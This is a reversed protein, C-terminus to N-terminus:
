VRERSFSHVRKSNANRYEYSIGVKEFLPAFKRIRMGISTASEGELGYYLRAKEALDKSTLEVTIVDVSEDAFDEAEDLMYMVSKVVPDSEFEYQTEDARFEEEEGLMIWRYNTWDMQIVYNKEQVDRGSVQMVTTKDGRKRRGLVIVADAAGAIGTSGNLRNFFDSDDSGKNTHHVIVCAIGKDIAYKQLQGLERYDYGYVGETKGAAGRIKQLTDIIVMGIQGNCSEILQDVQAILGENLTPAEKVLYLNSPLKRDGAVKLGRSRLRYDGDELALYLVGAQKTAIGLFPTGTAVSIALDLCMWSKGFKPPSALIDLGMPFLGPVLFSPEPIDMEALSALTVTKLTKIPKAEPPRWEGMDNFDDWADRLTASIPDGPNYRTCVSRCITEVEFDELPPSCYAENYEVVMKHLQVDDLGAGRLTSAFSFVTKNRHGEAVALQGQTLHEQGTGEESKAIDATVQKGEESNLLIDPDLLVDDHEWFHYDADWSASPWFM